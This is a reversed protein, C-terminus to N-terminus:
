SRIRTTWSSSPERATTYHRRRSTMRGAIADTPRRSTSGSRPAGGPNATSPQGHHQKVIGYVISLGLGTGKGVGQDHLLARLDASAPREDMGSGNDPAVPDARLPGPRPGHAAGERDCVIAQTGIILRGGAPM